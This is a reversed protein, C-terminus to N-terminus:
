KKTLKTFRVGNGGILTESDDSIHVTLIGPSEQNKNLKFSINITNDTREYEGAIWLESSIRISSENKRTDIAYPFLIEVKNEDVFEFVGVTKNGFVMPENMPNANVYTTGKMTPVGNCSTLVTLMITVAMTLYNFVIKKM